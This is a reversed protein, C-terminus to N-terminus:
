SEVVQREEFARGTVTMSGGPGLLGIVPLPAVVTVEVIRVGADSVTRGASVQGAYAPALSDTVLARTRDAAESIPVDARAGLRAGEAACAILTNRVYLALGLQFVGMGLLLVLTSVMVFEAV